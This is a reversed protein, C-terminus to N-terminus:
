NVGPGSFCAFLARSSDDGMGAQRCFLECRPCIVGSGPLFKGLQLAIESYKKDAIASM